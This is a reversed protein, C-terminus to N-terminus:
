IHQIPLQLTQSILYQQVHFHQCHHTLNMKYNSLYQNCLMIPATLISLNQSTQMITRYRRKTWLRTSSPASLSSSRRMRLSHKAPPEIKEDAEENITNSHEILDVVMKIHPMMQCSQTSKKKTHRCQQHPPSPLTHWICGFRRLM